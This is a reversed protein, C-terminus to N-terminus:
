KYISPRLWAQQAESKKVYLNLHGTRVIVLDQSDGQDGALVVDLSGKPTKSSLSM